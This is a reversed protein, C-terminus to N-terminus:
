ARRRLLAFAAPLALWFGSAPMLVVGAICLALLGWGLRRLAASSRGDGGGELPTIALALLALLAGFLLFWVSAAAMPDQGVGDFVGRQVIQWLPERLVLLAFVTHLGAVAMLWHGIWRRRAPTPSDSIHRNTM